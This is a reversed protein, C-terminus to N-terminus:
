KRANEGRVCEDGHCGIPYEAIACLRFENPNFFGKVLGVVCYSFPIAFAILYAPREYARVKKDKWNYRITLMFYISIFCSSMAKSIVAFLIVVAVTSCSEQNGIALPYGTAKNMMFPSFFGISSSILEIWAIVFLLRHYINTLKRRSIYIISTAGFWTLVCGVGGIGWLIFYQTDTLPGEYNSTEEMSM